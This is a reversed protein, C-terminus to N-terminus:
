NIIHAMEPAALRWNVPVGVAGLKALGFAVDFFEAGNREIFAVKDGFGVGARAFAQAARSSRADLEGFTITHDGVILAPADPRDRGHTRVIDAVGTIGTVTM